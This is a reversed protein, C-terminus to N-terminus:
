CYMCTRVSFFSKRFKEFTFLVYKFLRINLSHSKPQSESYKTCHPPPPPCYCTPMVLEYQAGCAMTEFVQLGGGASMIKLTKKQGPHCFFLCAVTTTCPSEVVIIADKRSHLAVVVTLYKAYFQLKM